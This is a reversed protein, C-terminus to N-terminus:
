GKVSPLRLCVSQDMLSAFWRLSKEYWYVQYRHNDNRWRAVAAQSARDIGAPAKPPTKRPLARTLTPLLVVNEQRCGRDVWLQPEPQYGPLCWEQYGEHTLLREEERARVPWSCWFLRPRRCWSVWKSDVLTPTMGLVESFKNRNVPTMSFVNEVFTFVPCGFTEQLLQFIRPMEYFLKSRAGELGQRDALLSSLDQCPSGGGCLVLDVRPGVAQCLMEIAKRDISTVSGLEIVGPWRKRVLRKCEKDIESSAFGIVRVPLRCLSCMLASVGDFLSLVFVAPGEASNSPMAGLPCFPMVGSQQSHTSQLTELLAEGELSLRGSVCMGGGSESADSCSVMGDVEARLDTGALPLLALSELIEARGRETLPVRTKLDKPWVTQLLNLLPRRFEFCRVLRGLVMLRVKVPPLRQHLYWLAFWAVEIKKALPVAVFGAQGDVEAGMRTVRPERVHAKEEAIEVGWHKYAARQRLHHPNMKGVLDEWGESPVIEPAEFDDLYYQFFSFHKGANSPIPMPRDRRWELWEEHGAGEPPSLLGLQRHLHQFLSVANLWGMPIVCASVYTWERELGALKGPIQWRFTMLRRWSPPLHWAYFAGRQDDGSWLLMQDERLTIGTWSTSSALTSVDGAMMRQYSNGPILNMILRTVRKEGKAPTGKKEVAFAGNLVKTGNVTFIEDEEIPEIIKRQLLVECLKYWEDRTANIRAQPVKDPWQERPKMALSSDCVWARVQPSSASASDLTGAIGQAPLGPLLEGLKLPIAKVMEDGSYDLSRDSILKAFTPLKVQALPNRCFHQVWRDINNFAARQSSTPEQEEWHQLEKWSASIGSLVGSILLKWLQNCGASVLKKNQQRHLRGKVGLEKPDVKVLGERTKELCQLLKVAAGVPPPPLPLVDRGRYPSTGVNRRNPTLWRILWAGDRPSSLLLQWLTIGLQLSSPPLVSGEFLSKHLVRCQDADMKLMSLLKSVDKFCSQNEPGHSGMDLSLPEFAQNRNSPAAKPAAASGFASAQTLGVAVGAQVPPVLAPSSLGDGIRSQAGALVPFDDSQAGALM